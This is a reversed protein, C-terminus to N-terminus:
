LRGIYQYCRRAGVVVVYGLPNRVRKLAEVWGDVGIGVRVVEREDVAAFVELVNGEAGEHLGDASHVYDVGDVGGGIGGGVPGVAGGQAGGVLAREDM